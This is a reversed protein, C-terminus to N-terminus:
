KKWRKGVALLAFLLILISAIKGGWNPDDLLKEIIEYDIEHILERIVIATDGQDTLVKLTDVNITDSGQVYTHHISDLTSDIKLGM